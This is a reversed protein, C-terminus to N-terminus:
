VCQGCCLVAVWVMECVSWLVVRDSLVIECVSWLVVRDALVMGYLSWSVVRNTIGHLVCELSHASNVATIEFITSDHYHISSM